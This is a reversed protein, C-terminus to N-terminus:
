EERLSDVLPNRGNLSHQENQFAWMTGLDFLRCGQVRRFYITMSYASSQGERKRKHASHRRLLKAMGKSAYYIPTRGMSDKAHIDANNDLLPVAVSEWGNSIACHLPTDGSQDKANIDAKNAILLEAIHKHGECAAIHLPTMYGNSKANVDAGTALLLKAVESHRRAAAFHLPTNGGRDKAFALNPNKSLMARLLTIYGGAAANHVSVSAKHAVLLDMLDKHNNEAALDLPTVGEDGRSDPDAKNSLLVEAAERHGNQAAWHLPTYGQYDTANIDAGRSLLLKELDKHGGSAACHLPTRDYCDKSSILEPDNQLMSAVIKAYGGEAADHVTVNAKHALLLDMTEIHHNRAAFDLPTEDHRDKANVEAGQLLLFRVIANRGDAAAEHLPTLRHSETDSILAPNGRILKKVMELDGTKVAKHIDVAKELRM